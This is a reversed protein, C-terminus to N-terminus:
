FWEDAIEERIKRSKKLLEAFSINKEGLNERFLASAELFKRERYDYLLEKILEATNKNRKRLRLEMLERHLDEPLAITKM